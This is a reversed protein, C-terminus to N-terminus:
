SGISRWMRACPVEYGCPKGFITLTLALPLFMEIGGFFHVHIFGTHIGYLHNFMNWKSRNPGDDQYELLNKVLLLFSGPHSQLVSMISSSHVELPWDLDPISSVDWVQIPTSHTNLTGRKGETQWGKQHRGRSPFGVHGATTSRNM